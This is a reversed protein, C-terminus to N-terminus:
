FVAVDGATDPPEDDGINDPNGYGLQGVLGFGWCRVMGTDLRACTHEGRASIQTVTGGLSVTTISSPLENDGISDTNAYGLRGSGGFGWCRVSGNNLLACTHSSGVALGMATAGLPVNGAADPAEDDGVDNENGYGLRGSSGQGWCRVAGSDLRACTHHGGGAAIEVVPGGVNVVPAASPAENDGIPTANGQGLQGDNNVGWCRVTDDDLRVCTHLAGTALQVVTGGVDVDGATAPLEDDGITTLNGYGLQGEDNGGWCRVAGTDLRVCTHFGGAAIEVVTGGVDVTAVSSPQEDDGVNATDGTGLRGNGGNGWCRVTGGTLVGCTHSSGPALDIVTGGVDVNGATNPDEDNGINDTNGYGLRGLSALGWCRVDGTDLIVCTHNSGAAVEAVRSFSCDVDCGDSDVANGDECEEVGTYVFGDGCTADLCTSPCADTDVVNGDDCEEVGAQLYTDGCSASKCGEVCADTNDPNGDDCDEVGVQVVVDGCIAAVCTSLCADTDDVNGDDCEEVGAQTFSDGCTATLCTSLCADTDDANADDCQEVDTQIEGDGCTASVCTSQCADTDDANGDDCAESGEVVGNGCVSMICTGDVCALDGDCTDDPTCPCDESGELCGGTSGGSDTPSGDTADTDTATATGTDTDGDTDTGESTAGGPDAEDNSCAPVALPWAVLWLRTRFRFLAMSRHYM